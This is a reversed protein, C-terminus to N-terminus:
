DLRRFKPEYAELVADIKGDLAVVELGSNYEFNLNPAEENNTLYLLNYRQGFSEDGLRFSFERHCNHIATRQKPGTNGTATKYKKVQRTKLAATKEMAFQMLDDDTLALSLYMGCNDFKKIMATGDAEKWFLYMAHYTGRSSCMRGNAMQFMETKGDCYRNVSFYDTISRTELRQTFEDILGNVYALDRQAHLQLVTFFLLFIRLLKM